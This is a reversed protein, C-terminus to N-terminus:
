KEPEGEPGDQGTLEKFEVKPSPKADPEAYKSYESHSPYLVEGKPTTVPKKRSLKKEDSEKIQQLRKLEAEDSGLTVVKGQVFTVHKLEEVSKNDGTYFKYAWKEKGYGYDTRNPSGLIDLVEDKTMGEKIDSFRDIPATQCGAVLLIIALTRKM